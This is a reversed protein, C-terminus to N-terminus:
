AKAAKGQKRKIIEDKYKIGKGKYPEPQRIKRINASAQGVMHKSAGSVKVVTNGEIELLVGEPAAFDVHHSYGVFFRLNNGMKEVRYGVGIIELTKTYGESVGIVANNVLSRILGWFAKGNDLDESLMSVNVSDEDVSVTIGPIQAVEVVGNKGTVTILDTSFSVDVGEPIKIPMKGIKSM